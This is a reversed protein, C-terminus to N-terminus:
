VTNKHSRMKFLSQVIMIMYPFGKWEGKIATAGRLSAWSDLIGSGMTIFTNKIGFCPRSYTSLLHQTSQM